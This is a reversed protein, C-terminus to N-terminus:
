QKFPYYKSLWETTKENCSIRDRYGHIVNLLGQYPYKSDLHVFAVKKLYTIKIGHKTYYGLTRELSKIEWPKLNYIKVTYLM